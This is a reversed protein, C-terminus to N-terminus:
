QVYGLAKLREAADQGRRVAHGESEAGELERVRASIAGQLRRVERPHDAAVDRTEGPDAVVDFLETAGSELDWILKYRGAEASRFVGWASFVAEHVPEGDEILPRLSRGDLRLELEEAGLYDLVTPVLDLNEVPAAIRRGGPLGPLRLVLPTHVETRHLTRCHKIHGHELFEEGHDAVVAVISRELLGRGRLADMVEGFRADFFAIEDDYLDILYSRDEGAVEFPREVEGYLLDAIPNVEGKAVFWKNGRYGGASFKADPPEYPDHPDMYHLYLFFPERLVSLYELGFRNVCAGDKWLCREEFVDFGRGFGGEPNFRTPSKRVIPSASVAVTAYGRRDLLEALSPTGEPIGM